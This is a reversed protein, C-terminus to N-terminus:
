RTPASSFNKTQDQISTLKELNTFINKESSFNNEKPINHHKRIPANQTRYYGTKLSKRTNVNQYKHESRLYHERKLSKKTNVNQYKHESRLYHERKLSKKTNVEWLPGLLHPFHSGALLHKNMGVIMLVM